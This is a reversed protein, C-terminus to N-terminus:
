SSLVSLFSNVVGLINVLSIVGIPKGLSDTVYTRHAHTSVLQELVTKLTTKPSVRILETRHLDFFEKISMKLKSFGSLNKEWGIVKLDSASINGILCGMQDIVGIGNVGKSKIEIFAEMLMKDEGICLVDKFAIGLEEVTKNAINALLDIKSNLHSILLSQSILSVLNGESDVIPIRHLSKSCMIELVIMLPAQDEVPFFINRSSSEAIQEVITSSFKERMIDITDESTWQSWEKSIFCVFDLMDVFKVFRRSRESFVPVSSINHEILLELGELLSTNVSVTVITHRNSPFLTSVKTQRLWDQLTHIEIPQKSKLFLMEEKRANLYEEAM